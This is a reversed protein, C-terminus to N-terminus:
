LVTITSVVSAIFVARDYHLSYLHVQCTATHCVPTLCSITGVHQSSRGFLKYSSVQGPFSLLIKLKLNNIRFLLM